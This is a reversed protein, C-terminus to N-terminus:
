FPDREFAQKIEPIQELCTFVTEPDFGHKRILWIGETVFDMMLETKTKKLYTTLIASNYRKFDIPSGKALVGIEKTEENWCLMANKLNIM